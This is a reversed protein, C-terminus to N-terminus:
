SSFFPRFDEGKAGDDQGFWCITVLIITFWSAGKFLNRIIYKHTVTYTQCLIYIMDEM